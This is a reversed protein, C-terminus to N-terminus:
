LIDALESDIKEVEDMLLARKSELELRRDARSLATVGYLDSVLTVVGAERSPEFIWSTIKPDYRGGLVRARKPLSPHPPAKLILRHSHYSLSVAASYYM